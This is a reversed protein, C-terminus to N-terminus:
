AGEGCLLDDIERADMGLERAIRNKPPRGEKYAKVLAQCRKQVRRAIEDDHAHRSDYALDAMKMGDTEAQRCLERVDIDGRIFKEFKGM